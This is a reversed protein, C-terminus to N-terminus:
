QERTWPTTTIEAVAMAPSPIKFISWSKVSNYCFLAHTNNIFWLTTTTHTINIDNVHTSKDHLHDSTSLTVVNGTGGPEHLGGLSWPRGFDVLRAITQPWHHAASNISESQWDAVSTSNSINTFSIAKINDSQRREVILSLQQHM